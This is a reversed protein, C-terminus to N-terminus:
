KILIELDSQNLSNLYNCFALALKKSQFEGFNGLGNKEWNKYVEDTYGYKSKGTGGHITPIDSLMMKRTVKYEQFENYDGTRYADVTKTETKVIFEIKESIEVTLTNQNKM